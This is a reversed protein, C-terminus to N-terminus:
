ESRLSKDSIDILEGSDVARASRLNVYAANGGLNLSRACGGEGTSGLGSRVDRNVKANEHILRGCCNTNRTRHM